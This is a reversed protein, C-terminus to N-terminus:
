VHKGPEIESLMEHAETLTEASQSGFGCADDGIPFCFGEALMIWYRDGDYELDDVRPDNKIAQRM